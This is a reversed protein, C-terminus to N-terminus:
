VIASVTFAPQLQQKSIQLIPVPIADRDLNQEPAIDYLAGDDIEEEDAKRKQGYVM